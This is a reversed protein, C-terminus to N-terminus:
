RVIMIKRTWLHTATQVTVIYTGSPVNAAIHLPKGTTIGEALVERGDATYLKAIGEEQMAGKIAITFAGSSPQPYISLREALIGQSAVGLYDGTIVKVNSTAMAPVACDLSSTVTCYVTDNSYLAASFIASTAGAVPMGNEYWQYAPSSGEYTVTTYFSVIEGDYDVSDNGYAVVHITPAVTPQVTLITTAYATDTALCAAHDSSIMRCLVVDGPSPTYTFPNGTFMSAGGVSWVYYPAIGGYVPHGTLTVPMGGCAAAPNNSISVSAYVYPYMNIVRANSIAAAPFACVATTNMKCVITDGTMLGTTTYTATSGSVPVSNRYWHWAPSAGGNVATAIYTVSNGNCITDASSTISVSAAINNHMILAHTITDDSCLHNTYTIIVSGAAIGVVAGNTDVLATSVASSSWTRGAPTGTFHLTDGVCGVTPGAISMPPHSLAIDIFLTTTDASLEDSVIYSCTDRGAFGTAPVYSMGSPVVAGGNAMASFTATLVGHQAPRNVTWTLQQNTNADLAALATDLLVTGAGVCGAVSQQHGHIFVPRYNTIKRVCYNTQDVIYISGDADMAIGTITNMNAATAPGGDGSYGASYTGAFRTIIGATSIKRVANQADCPVYMNGAMDMCIDTLKGFQAAAISGGDGSYGPQNIATLTTLIGSSDIKCLRDNNGDGFIISSHPAFCIGRPVGVQAATAPGGSGGYGFIAGSSTGAVTTVIGATNIKRIKASQGECIILEGAKNMVVNYPDSLSTATAQAGDPATAAIGTGAVTTVIGAPTIKRIRENGQDAVLLNDATDFAIGRIYSFQANTAMGGDGGYGAVGNGAFTTIIGATNIKRITGTTVESIYINGTKDIAIGWPWSLTAATAPGGNGTYGVVGTGAITTIIQSSAPFFALISILCFVAHKM